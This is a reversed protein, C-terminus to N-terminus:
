PFQSQSPQEAHCNAAPVNVFGAGVDWRLAYGGNLYGNAAFMRCAIIRQNCLLTYQSLDIAGSQFGGNGANWAIRTAYRMTRGAYLGITCVGFTVSALRISNVGAPIALWVDTIYASPVAANGTTAGAPYNNTNPANNTAITPVGYADRWAFTTNLNNAGDNGPLIGPPTPNTWIMRHCVGPRASQITCPVVPSATIRNTYGTALLDSM